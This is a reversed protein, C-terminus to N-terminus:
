SNVEETTLEHPLELNTPDQIASPAVIKVGGNVSSSGERGAHYLQVAIKAGHAQFIIM